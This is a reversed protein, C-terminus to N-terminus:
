AHVTEMVGLHKLLAEIGKRAKSDLPCLPLRFEEEILGAVAMATKIPIPNPGFRGLGEALDYVKKHYNAAEVHKGELASAVLTKVMSPCLNSVVSILGFAGLCMLPWTLSDDGSLVTIDCRGLLETVGNVSGTAHKIAVIHPFNERLRVVLDNSMDVGTRIPVNYLVIPRDTCDAIEAFHRYMGEQTPRNYYPAVLLVADAGATTAHKTRLIAEATSNSGSGAMIRVRGRAREIVAEVIRGHEDHTLTPSEGTTGCPVLWDTGADIQLDVLNNLRVWDVEGGSFPTVLATMAGRVEFNRTSRTMESLVEM